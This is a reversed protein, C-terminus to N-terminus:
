RSATLSPFMEADPERELNLDRDTGASRASSIPRLRKDLLGRVRRLGFLPSTKRANKVVYTSTGDFDYSVDEGLLIDVPSSLKGKGTLRGSAGKSQAVVVNLVDVRQLETVLLWEDRWVGASRRDMVGAAVHMLNEIEVLQAGAAAFAWASSRSASFEVGLAADVAAVTADGKLVARFELGRQKVFDHKSAAVKLVVDIGLEALTGAKRFVGREFTGITGIEIPDTPLWTPYFGLESRLEESYQRPADMVHSALLFRRGRPIADDSGRLANRV